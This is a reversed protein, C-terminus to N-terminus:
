IEIKLLIEGACHEKLLCIDSTFLGKQTSIIYFGSFTNNNYNKILNNLSFYKKNGPKSLITIKIIKNCIYYKFYISIKNTNLIKYSRIAGNKYLINLIKLTIKNSEVNIFRLRKQTGYNIKTTLNSILHNTLHM